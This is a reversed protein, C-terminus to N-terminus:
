HCSDLPIQDAQCRAAEAATVRLIVGGAGRWADADADITQEALQILDAVDLEHSLLQVSGFTTEMLVIAPSSPDRNSTTAVARRGSVTVAEFQIGLKEISERAEDLTAEHGSLRVNLGRTITSDTPDPVFREYEAYWSLSPHEVEFLPDDTLPDIAERLKWQM